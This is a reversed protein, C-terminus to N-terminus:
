WRLSCSDMGEEVVWSYAEVAVMAELVVVVEAEMNDTYSTEPVILKTHLNHSHDELYNAFAVIEDEVAVVVEVAAVVMCDMDALELKDETCVAMDEVVLAALERRQEDGLVALEDDAQADRGDAVLEADAELWVASIQNEAFHNEYYALEVM